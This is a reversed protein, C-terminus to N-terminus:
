QPKGVIKGVFDVNKALFLAGLGGLLAVIWKNQLM